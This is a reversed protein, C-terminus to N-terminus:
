PEPDRHLPLRLLVETGRPARPRIHFAGGHAELVARVVALGIGMGSFRRTTGGEVQYFPQGVRPLHEPPIGIGEDWVRLLIEGGEVTLAIGIRGGAPSFKVANDLVEGLACALGEPDGVMWVPEEPVEVQLAHRAPDLRAQLRRAAERVLDALDLPQRRGEGARAVQLALLLEVYRHLEQLRGRSVEVAERQAANLPGLAGETLLELYGMAVTLPTRLEHSVNQIMEERLRLAEGLARNLAAREAAEQRARELLQARHIGTALLDALSQLLDRIEPDLARPRRWLVHLVGLIEGQHRLPLAAHTRFGERKILARTESPYPYAACDEVWLAEGTAGVRGTITGAAEGLEVRSIPFFGQAAILQLGSGAADRGYASVADAGLHVRIEGLAQELLESVEEGHALARAIQYLVHLRETQARLRDLLQLREMVAGLERGVAEMLAIEEPGWTRPEPVALSLGGLPAEGRGIPVTVSSRIGLRAMVPALPRAPHDSPLAQWDSVAIPERLALSAARAAEGLQRRAEMPLGHVVAHGPVYIAGMPAKLAARLQTLVREMLTNLDPAATAERLVAHLIELHAAQRQTEALLRAREVAGAVQAAVIQALHQEAETFVRPRGVSDVGITGIVREGVVLPVILLSRIGMAELVPGVPGLIPDRVDPIALPRRERLIWAMSPNGAIPIKVGLGSPTGAPNHEAVVVLHDGGEAMLAIAGRDARLLEVLERVIRVLLPELAVEENVMLALRNLRAMLPEASGGVGAPLLGALRRALLLLRKQAEAARLAPSGEATLVGVTKGDERARLPLNLRVASMAPADFTEISPRGSHYSWVAGCSPEGSLPRELIGAVAALPGTGAILRLRTGEPDPLWLGLAIAHGQSELAAAAERLVGELDASRLLRDVWELLSDGTMSPPEMPQYSSSAPSREQIM